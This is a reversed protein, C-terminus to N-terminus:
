RALISSFFSTSLIFTWSTTGLASATFFSHRTTRVLQTKASHPSLHDAETARSTLQVPTERDLLPCVRADREFVQSLRPSLRSRSTLWPSVTAATNSTRRAYKSASSFLSVNTSVDSQTGASKRAVHSPFSRLASCCRAPAILQSFPKDATPEDDPTHRAASETIM